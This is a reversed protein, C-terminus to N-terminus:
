DTPLLLIMMVGIQAMLTYSGVGFTELLAAPVLALVGASTAAEAGTSAFGAWTAVKELLLLGLMARTIGLLASELPYNLFSSVLLGILGVVAIIALGPLTRGLSRESSRIPTSMIPMAPGVLRPLLFGLALARLLFGGVGSVTSFSSFAVFALQLVLGIQDFVPRRYLTLASRWAVALLVSSDLAPLPLSRTPRISSVRGLLQDKLRRHQDPDPRSRAVLSMLMMSRLASLIQSQAAFRPPYGATLSARSGIVGLILLAIPLLGLINLNWFGSALGFGLVGGAVSSVVVLLVLINLWARAASNESGRASYALWELDVTLAALCGFTLAAFPTFIDFWYSSVLTWVAGLIAAIAFRFVRAFNLPWDLVERADEATLALRYVDRGNLNIPPTSSRSASFLLWLGALSSFIIPLWKTNIPQKFKPLVEAGAIIAIVVWGILWAVTGWGIAKGVYITWSSLGRSLSLRRAFRTASESRTPTM